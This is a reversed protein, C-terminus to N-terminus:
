DSKRDSGYFRRLLPPTSAHPAICCFDLVCYLKIGGAHTRSQLSITRMRRSCANPKNGFSRRGNGFHDSTASYLGGQEEGRENCREETQRCPVINRTTNRDASGSGQTTRYSDRPKAARAVRARARRDARRLRLRRRRRKVVLGTRAGGCALVNICHCSPSALPVDAGTFRRCRTRDPSRAHTAVRPPRRVTSTRFVSASSLPLAVPRQCSSNALTRRLRAHTREHASRTTPLAFFSVLLSVRVKTKAVAVRSLVTSNTTVSFIRRDFRKTPGDANNVDATMRHDAATVPLLNWQERKM